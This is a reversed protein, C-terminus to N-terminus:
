KVVEPTENPPVIVAQLYSFFFHRYRIPVVVFCPVPLVRPPERLAGCCKLPCLKHDVRDKQEEKGLHEATSAPLSVFSLVM